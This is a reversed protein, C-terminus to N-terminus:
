SWRRLYAAAQECRAPIDSFQGIGVNCKSHLLGRNKGTTHCHDAVPPQKETFPEFCLACANNQSKLRMEYEERTMRKLRSPKLVRRLEIARNKEPNAARWLRLSERAETRHTRGYQRGHARRKEPDKYPM